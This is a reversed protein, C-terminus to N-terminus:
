KSIYFMAKGKEFNTSNGVSKFLNYAFRDQDSSNRFDFSAGNPYVNLFSELSDREYQNLKLYFESFNSM